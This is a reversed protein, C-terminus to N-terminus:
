FSYLLKKEVEPRLLKGAEEVVQEANVVAVVDVGL